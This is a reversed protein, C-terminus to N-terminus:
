APPTPSPSIPPTATARRRAPISRTLIADPRILKAREAAYSKSILWDIPIKAFHPDAYYRARDEYALRKAEVQTHMSAASQFGMGRLDFNELSTSFQLTALGQTNAAMAYVDVGRYNTVLPDLWEAHQERLDARTLWGGIRKFYAEITQAIPGDYYADRGGEAIMKYTRALDPNRFVDGEGVAKGNPAWTHM